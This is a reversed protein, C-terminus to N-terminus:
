DLTYVIAMEIKTDAGESATLNATCKLYLNTEESVYEGIMKSLADVRKFNDGNTGALLAGKVITKVADLDTGAANLLGLDFSGTTKATGAYRIYGDVIRCNKPLVAMKFLDGAAADYDLVVSDYIYKGKGGSVGPALRTNSEHAAVSESKTTSNSM